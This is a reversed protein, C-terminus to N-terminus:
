RDIQVPVSPGGSPRVGFVRERLAQKALAGATPPVGGTLLQPPPAVSPNERESRRVARMRERRQEKVQQEVAHVLEDVDADRPVHRLVILSVVSSVLAGGVGGAILAYLVEV